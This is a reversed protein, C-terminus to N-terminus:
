EAYCDQQAEKKLSKKLHWVTTGDPQEQDTPTPLPPPVARKRAEALVKRITELFRSNLENVLIGPVEKMENVNVSTLPSIESVHLSNRLANHVEGLIADAGESKDILRTWADDVHSRLVGPLDTMIAAAVPDNKFIAESIEFWAVAAVPDDEVEGVLLGALPISDSDPNTLDPCFSVVAYGYKLPKM